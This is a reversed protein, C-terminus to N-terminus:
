RWSERLSIGKLYKNGEIKRNKRAYILPSEINPNLQTVNSEKKWGENWALTQYKNHDIEFGVGIGGIRGTLAGWAYYVATEHLARKIIKEPNDKIFLIDRIQRIVPSEDDYDERSLEGGDQIQKLLGVLRSETMKESIERIPSSGNRCSLNSLQKKAEQYIRGLNEASFSLKCTGSKSLYEKLSGLHEELKELMEEIRGSVLYKHLLPPFVSQIDRVNGGPQFFVQQAYKVSSNDVVGGMLNLAIQIDELNLRDILEHKDVNRKAKHACLLTSLDVSEKRCLIKCVEYVSGLSNQGEHPIETRRDLNFGTFIYPLTGLIFQPTTMKDQIDREDHNVGYKIKELLSKIKVIDSESTQHGSINLVAQSMFDIVGKSYLPNNTDLVIANKEKQYEGLHDRALFEDLSVKKGRSHFFPNKPNLPHYYIEVM